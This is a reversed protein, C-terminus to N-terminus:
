LQNLTVENTQVVQLRYTGKGLTVESQYMRNEEDPNQAQGASAGTQEMRSWKLNGLQPKEDTVATIVMDAQRPVHVRAWQAGLLSWNNQLVGPRVNVETRMSRVEVEIMQPLLITLEAELRAYNFGRKEPMKSMTIYMTEGMTQVTAYEKEIHEVAEPPMSTSTRYHGFLRISREGTGEITIPQDSTQVVIKRIASPIAQQITPLQRTVEVTGIAQKVEGLVGVSTLVSFVIAVSGLFGVFVISLVDYRVQVKENKSFFVYLLIEAGLMIIVIPWWSALLETMQKSETKAFFVLLGLMILSMGM